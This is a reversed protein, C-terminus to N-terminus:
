EKGLEKRLAAELAKASSQGGRKQWHALVAYAKGREYRAQALNPALAVVKDMVSIAEAFAPAPTDDGPTARSRRSCLSISTATM